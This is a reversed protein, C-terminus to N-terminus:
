ANLMLLNIGVDIIIIEHSIISGIQKFILLLKNFHAFTSFKIDRFTEIGSLDM